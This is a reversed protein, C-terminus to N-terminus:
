LWMKLRNPRKVCREWYVKIHMLYNCSSLLSVCMVRHWLQWLSMLYRIKTIKPKNFSLRDRGSGQEGGETAKFTVLGSLAARLVPFLTEIKIPKPLYAVDFKPEMISSYVKPIGAYQACAKEWLEEGGMGDVDVVLVDAQTNSEALQYNTASHMKFAMSFIASKRADVGLLMVKVSPMNSVSNM